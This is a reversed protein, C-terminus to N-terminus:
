CEQGPVSVVHMQDFADEFQVDDHMKLQMQESADGFLDEATDLGENCILQESIWNQLNQLTPLSHHSSHPVLFPYSMFAGTWSLVSLHGLQESEASFPPISYSHNSNVSELAAGMYRVRSNGASGHESLLQNDHLHEVPLQLQLCPKAQLIDSNDSSPFFQM